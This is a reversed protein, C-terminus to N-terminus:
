HQQMRNTIFNLILLINKFVPILLFDVWLM